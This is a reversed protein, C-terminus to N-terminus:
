PDGGEQKIYCNGLFAIDLVLNASHELRIPRSVSVGRRQAHAYRCRGDFYMSCYIQLQETTTLIRAGRVM